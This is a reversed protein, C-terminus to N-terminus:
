GYTLCTESRELVREACAALAALEDEGPYILVPGLFSVRKKINSIVFESHALGGTLVVGDIQGCLAAAYACIEKSINYIM